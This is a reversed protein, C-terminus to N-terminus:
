CKVVCVHLDQQWDGFPGFGFTTSRAAALVGHKSAKFKCCGEPSAEAGVCYGAIYDMSYIDDSQAPDFFHVRGSFPIGGLSSPAPGGVTYDVLLKSVQLDAMLQVSDDTGTALRARTGNEWHWGPSLDRPATAPQAATWTETFSCSTAVGTSVAVAACAREASHLLFNSQSELVFKGSVSSVKVRDLKTSSGVPTITENLISWSGICVPAANLSGSASFSIGSSTHTYTGIYDYPHLSAAGADHLTVLGLLSFLGLTTVILRTSNKLSDTERM